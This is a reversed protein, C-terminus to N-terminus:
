NKNYLDVDMHPYPFNINEKDFELKVNELLDFHVTWYNESQCWVRLIFNVSSDGLEALKIVPAPDKLILEHENAIRTLVNKVKAIDDQYSVGFTLDVRRTDKTSYNTVSSNSLNGNPIVIIRNDPTNLITHFVQIETVTGAHGAGEIFDGVKFPKLLIILVGGAFNSLSGQLALGVALGAAGLITVFATMKVGLIYAITIFLLINLSMRTISNLFSHLSKDVNGKSLSKNLLKSIHKILLLGIILVIIALIIKQGYAIILNLLFSRNM